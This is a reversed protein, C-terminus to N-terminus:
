FELLLGAAVIVGLDKMVSLAGSKNGQAQTMATGGIMEVHQVTTKIQVFLGIFDIVPCLSTFTIFAEALGPNSGSGAQFFQRL